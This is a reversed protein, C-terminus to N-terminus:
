CTNSPLTRDIGMVGFANGRDRNTDGGFSSLPGGTEMM